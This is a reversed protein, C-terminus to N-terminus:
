LAIGSGDTIVGVDSVRTYCKWYCDVFPCAHCGFEWESDFPDIDDNEVGCAVCMIHGCQSAIWMIAHKNLPRDCRWCKKRRWTVIGRQTTTNKYYSGNDKDMAFACWSAGMTEQLM